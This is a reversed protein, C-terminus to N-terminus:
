HYIGKSAGKKRTSSEGSHVLLSSSSTGGAAIRVPTKVVSLSPSISSDAVPTSSSSSQETELKIKKRVLLRIYM